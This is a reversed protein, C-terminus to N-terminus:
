PKPSGLLSRTGLKADRPTEWRGHVIGVHEGGDCSGGDNGADGKGLRGLLVMDEEEEAGFAGSFMGAGGGGGREAEGGSSTLFSDGYAFVGVLPLAKAAPYSMYLALSHTIGFLPLPNTSVSILM